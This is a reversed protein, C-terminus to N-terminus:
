CIEARKMERGGGEWLATRSHVTDGEELKGM